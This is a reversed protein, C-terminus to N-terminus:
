TRECTTCTGRRRQQYAMAAVFLAAGWIPWLTEPMGSVWMGDAGHAFAGRIYMFGAATVLVAVLTAPIVALLVPVRKGRLGIMWRPFVEGWRQILGLTLVAGGAGMTALAAGAFLLGSDYMERFMREPLGINIGLAWIWRTVCYILPTIIAVLVAPRGWAVLRSATDSDNRGCDGCAGSTRRRYAVVTLAFAIGILVARPARRGVGLAMLLAAVAGAFGVAAIWPGAVGPTSFGLLNAVIADDGEGVLDPDGVGFPFGAGGRAWHVGLVGYVLAAAATPYGIWQSWNKRM